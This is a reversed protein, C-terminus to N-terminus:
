HAVGLGCRSHRPLFLCSEKIPFYFQATFRSVNGDIDLAYSTWGGCAVSIVRAEFGNTGSVKVPSNETSHRGIGLQGYNDYGWSYVDGDQTLAM